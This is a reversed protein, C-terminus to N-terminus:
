QKDFFTEFGILLKADDRGTQLRKNFGVHECSCRGEKDINEVAYFNNMFEQTKRYISMGGFNSVVQHFKDGSVDIKERWIHKGKIHDRRDANKEILWKDLFAYSDYLYSTLPLSWPQVTKGYASIAVVSIDEAMKQLSDYFGKEDLSVNQDLDLCVCHSPEFKGSLVMDKVAAHLQNRLSAYRAIRKPGKWRDSKPVAKAFLNIARQAEEGDGDVITVHKNEKKWEELFERTGDTSGNELIVFRCDDFFRSLSIINKKSKGLNPMADRCMGYFIATRGATDIQAPLQKARNALLKHMHPVFIYKSYVVVVLYILAFLALLGFVSLGYGYMKTTKNKFILEFRM